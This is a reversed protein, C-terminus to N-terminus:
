ICIKYCVITNKLDYKQPNKTSLIRERIIICTYIVLENEIKQQLGNIRKIIKTKTKELKENKVISNQEKVKKSQIRCEIDQNEQQLKRVSELNQDYKITVADFDEYVKQQNQKKTLNEISCHFNNLQLQLNEVESKVMDQEALKNELIERICEYQKLRANLSVVCSHINENPYNQSNNSCTMDTM